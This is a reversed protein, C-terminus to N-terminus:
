GCWSSAPWAVGVAAWAEGFWSAQAGLVVEGLRPGGAVVVIFVGQLRGRMDDPTATQLITQRFVSSVADSAGALALAICAAILGGVLIQPPDTSGVVLLVAGFAAISLGVVHHGLRDRARGACGHSRVPSCARWSPVWPSPQASSAPRPRAAASSCSASRPCCCAPFALIMAALDVLFTTRVNPRTALYRLGDIVSSIGVVTRRPVDDVGVATTDSGAHGGASAPESM